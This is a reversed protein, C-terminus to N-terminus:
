TWRELDNPLCWYERGDNLLVDYGFGYARRVIGAHGDVTRVRVLQGPAFGSAPPLDPEDLGKVLGKPSGM